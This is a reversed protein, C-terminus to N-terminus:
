SRCCTCFFGPWKSCKRQFGTCISSITIWTHDLVSVGSLFWLTYSMFYWCYKLILWEEYKSRCQLLSSWLFPSPSTLTRFRSSVGSTSDQCKLLTNTETVGGCVRSVDVIQGNVCRAPRLTAKLTSQCCACGIFYWARYLFKIGRYGFRLGERMVSRSTPSFLGDNWHNLVEREKLCKSKDRSCM